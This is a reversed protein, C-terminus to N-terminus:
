GMSCVKRSNESSKYSVLVELMEKIVQMSIITSHIWYAWWKDIFHSFVERRKDYSVQWIDIYYYGKM